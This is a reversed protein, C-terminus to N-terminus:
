GLSDRRRRLIPISALLVPLVPTVPEPIVNLYLASTGSDIMFEGTLSGALGSAVFDTAQFGTSGDWDVLKFWGTTGTGGFNFTFTTGTGRLFDNSGTIDLLDSDTATDAAMVSAAGAGLEFLWADNANWTVDGNITLTAISDGPALIGNITTSGGLTGNGGLTAFAAVSVAGTAASQDGHVILTGDTVTTDGTYTNNGALIWKGPGGKTLAVPATGNASSNDAIV